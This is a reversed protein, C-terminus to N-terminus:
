SRVKQDRLQLLQAWREQAAAKAQESLQQPLAQVPDNWRGERQKRAVSWYQRNHVQTSRGFKSM